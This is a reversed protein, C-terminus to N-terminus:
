YCGKGERWPYVIIDPIKQDLCNPWHTAKRCLPTYIDSSHNDSSCWKELQQTLLAVYLHHIDAPAMEDYHLPGKWNASPPYEAFEDNWDPNKNVLAEVHEGVAMNAAQPQAASVLSFVLDGGHGHPEKCSPLAHWNLQWESLHNLIDLLHQQSLQAALPPKALSAAAGQAIRPSEHGVLVVMVRLVEADLHPCCRARWIAPPAFVRSYFAKRGELYALPWLWGCLLKEAVRSFFKNTSFLAPLPQIGDYDPLRWHIGAVAAKLDDPWSAFCRMDVMVKETRRLMCLKSKNKKNSKTTMVLPLNSEDHFCPFWVGCVVCWVNELIESISLWDSAPKQALKVGIWVCRTHDFLLLM